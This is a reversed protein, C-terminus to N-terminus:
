LEWISYCLGDLDGANKRYWKYMDNIHVKVVKLQQKSASRVGTLKNWISQNTQKKTQKKKLSTKFFYPTSNKLIGRVIKELM